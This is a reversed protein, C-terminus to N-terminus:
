VIKFLALIVGQVVSYIAVYFGLSAPLPVDPQAEVYGKLIMARNFLDHNNQKGACGMIELLRSQWYDKWSTQWWVLMAMSVICAILSLTIVGMVSYGWFSSRPLIFLLTILLAFLNGFFVCTFKSFINRRMETHQIRRLRYKREENLVYWTIAIGAIPALLMMLLTELLNSGEFSSEAPLDGAENFTTIRQALSEIQTNSDEVHEQKAEALELLTKLRPHNDLIFSIMLVMHCENLYDAKAEQLSTIVGYVTIIIATTVLQLALILEIQLNFIKV